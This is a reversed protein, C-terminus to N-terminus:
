PFNKSHLYAVVQKVSLRCRDPRNLCLVISCLLFSHFVSEQLPM